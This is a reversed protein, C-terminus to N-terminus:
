HGLNAMFAQKELELNGRQNISLHRQHSYVTLPMGLLGSFWLQEHNSSLSSVSLHNGMCELYINYM